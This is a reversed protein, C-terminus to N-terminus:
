FGDFTGSFDALFFTFVLFHGGAGVMGGQWSFFINVGLLFVFYLSSKPFESSLCCFDKFIILCDVSGRWGGELGLICPCALVFICIFVSFLSPEEEFDSNRNFFEFTPFILLM